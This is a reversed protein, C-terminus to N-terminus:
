KNKIFYTCTLEIGQDIFIEPEYHMSYKASSVDALSHRIDGQRQGNYIVNHNATVGLDLLTAIILEQLDNLSTEEGCSINFVGSMNINSRFAAQLNARVVNEVYCFDRTTKGDGNIQLTKDNYIADIWKPIVAAYAGDPDQRPGFVNFYRLGTTKINYLDSYVGAYLENAAKTVAYPSLLKGMETERKPLVPHDGYVASSSAYTFTEIGNLRSAELVNIFGNINALNTNLPNSISRPVSGLAAQHLVHKTDSMLKCIEEFDLIDCEHFHFNDWEGADVNTKIELLNTKRGTSFNDLGVVCQGLSLLREVLNSGIFGAAGTVLWTEQNAKMYQEIEGYIM